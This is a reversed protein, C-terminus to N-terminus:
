LECRSRRSNPLAGGSTSSHTSSGLLVRAQLRRRGRGPAAASLNNTSHPSARRAGCRRRPTVEGRRLTSRRRGSLVRTLGGSGGPAAM